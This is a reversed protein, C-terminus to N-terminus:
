YEDPLRYAVESLNMYGDDGCRSCHLFGGDALSADERAEYRVYEHGFMCRIMSWCLCAVVIFIGLSNRTLVGGLGCRSIM